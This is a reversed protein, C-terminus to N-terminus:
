CVSTPTSRGGSRNDMGGIVQGLQETTLLDMQRVTETRFALKETTPQTPTKKM